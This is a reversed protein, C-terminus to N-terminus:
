AYMTSPRNLWNKGTLQILNSFNAFGLLTTAPEVPESLLATRM